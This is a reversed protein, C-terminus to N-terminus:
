FQQASSEFSHEGMSAAAALAIRRRTAEDDLLALLRAAVADPEPAALACVRGDQIMERVGPVDADVVACGCAMGQLPVWSINASLSFCLLIHAANMERALEAHSQVGLNELALGHAGM